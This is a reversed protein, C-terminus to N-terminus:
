YPHRNIIKIIEQSVNGKYQSGNQMTVRIARNAEVVQRVVFNREMETLGSNSRLLSVFYNRFQGVKQLHGATSLLEGTKAEHLLASASSGNGYKAGERYYKALQRRLEPDRFIRSDRVFRILQRM